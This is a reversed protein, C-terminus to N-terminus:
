GHRRTEEDLDQQTRFWILLDNIRSALDAIDSNIGCSAVFDDEEFLENQKVKIVEEFRKVHDPISGRIHEWKTLIRIQSERDYREWDRTLQPVPIGHRESWVFEHDLWDGETRSHELAIGM